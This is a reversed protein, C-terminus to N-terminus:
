TARPYCERIFEVFSPLSLRFLIMRMFRSQFKMEAKIHQRTAKLVELEGIARRIGGGCFRSGVALLSNVARM